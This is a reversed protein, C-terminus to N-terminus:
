PGGMNYLDVEEIRQIKSEVGRAAIFRERIAPVYSVGGVTTDGCPYAFTRSKKGDSINLFVDAMVIEDTLQQLTYTTLDYEPKVWERGPVTGRCPHFLSHNGLEYGKAAVAQWEVARERFAPFFASLYFTAKFGASDLAPVVHDLHVNLADDYTLAVAAGKGKWPGAKQAYVEDEGMYEFWDFYAISNGPKGGSSAYLAYMSGVFGGAGRTSLFKADVGEKLLTWAGPEEAYWFAYTDGQSEIKLELAGGADLFKREALVEGHEHSGQRASSRHLQVVTGGDQVSKSLLYFHQENQFVLLGAKEHEGAPQFDVSTRASGRLHQQRHGLFSPNGTGAATEPRVQVAVSGERKTLSYWNQLPTRLFTWNPKLRPSDFDDRYTFNGSLPIEQHEKIPQVPFPYSYQVTEHDPNIVPWGDMWRVPALFTERGTNYYEEGWADVLKYPRCGLFVAWWEGSPTEVFDAHGTTTVPFPRKPDLHRQTLIPNGSFPDYSGRVDKSRFVVESSEPLQPLPLNMSLRIDRLRPM